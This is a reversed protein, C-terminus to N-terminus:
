RRSRLFGNLQGLGYALSGVAFGYQETAFAYAIWLPQLSVLLLWGWPVNRGALHTGLIGALVLGWSALATACPRSGTVIGVGLIVAALGASAALSCTLERVPSGAARATAELKATPIRRLTTATM